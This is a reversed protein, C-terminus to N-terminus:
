GVVIGTVNGDGGKNRSERSVSKVMGAMFSGFAESRKREDDHLETPSKTKPPAVDVIELQSLDLELVVRGNDSYWELYPYTTYPYYLDGAKIHERYRNAFEQRREERERGRIGSEDWVLENQAMLKAALTATWPGLPIGATIDGVTGRQVRAMGDMYSGERELATNKDSPNPNRLRILAGRIDEHFDGALDFTVRLPPKRNRFFRMWGIVKGPKTNDLEGNILNEYPRWAMRNTPNNEERATRGAPSRYCFYWPLGDTEAATFATPQSPSTCPPCAEVKAEGRGDREGFFFTHAECSFAGSGIRFFPVFEDPVM